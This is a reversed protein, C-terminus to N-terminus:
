LTRLGVLCATGRVGSILALLVLSFEATLVVCFSAGLDIRLSSYGYEHSM